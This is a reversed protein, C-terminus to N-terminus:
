ELAYVKSLVEMEGGGLVDPVRDIQHAFGQRLLLAELRINIIAAGFLEVEPVGIARALAQSRDRFRRLEGVGAGISTIAIIGSRVRQQQLQVVGIGSGQSTALNYAVADGQFFARRHMRELGMQRLIRAASFVGRPDAM